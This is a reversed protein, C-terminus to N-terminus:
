LGPRRSGSSKLHHRLSAQIGQGPTRGRSTGDEHRLSDGDTNVSRMVTAVFPIEKHNHHLRCFPHRTATLDNKESFEGADRPSQNKRQLPLPLGHGALVPINTSPLALYRYVSNRCLIGVRKGCKRRLALHHSLFIHSKLIKRPIGQM